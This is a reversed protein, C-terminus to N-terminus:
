MGEEALQKKLSAPLWGTVVLFPWLIQVIGLTLVMYPIFLAAEDVIGGSAQKALQLWGSVAMSIGILFRIVLRFSRNKILNVMM